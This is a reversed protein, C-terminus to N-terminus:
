RLEEKTPLLMSLVDGRRQNKVVTAESWWLSAGMGLGKYTVTYWRVQRDVNCVRKLLTHLRVRYTQLAELFDDDPKRLFVASIGLLIARCTFAFFSYTHGVM